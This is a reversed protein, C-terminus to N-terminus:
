VDQDKAKVDDLVDDLGAPIIKISNDTIIIRGELEEGFIDPLSGYGATSTRGNINYKIERTEGPQLNCWVHDVEGLSGAPSRDLGTILCGKAGGPFDIRVGGRYGSPVEVMVVTSGPKYKIVLSRKETYVFEANDIAVGIDGLQRAYLYLDNGEHMVLRSSVWIRKWYRPEIHGVGTIFMEREDLFYYADDKVYVRFKIKRTETGTQMNQNSMIM